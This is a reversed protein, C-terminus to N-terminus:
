KERGLGGHLIEECNLEIGRIEEGDKSWAFARIDGTMAVIDGQKAEKMKDALEDWATCDLVLSREKGGNSTINLVKFNCVRKNGVTRITPNSIIKGELWLRNVQNQM